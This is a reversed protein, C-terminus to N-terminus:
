PYSYFNPTLGFLEQKSMTDVHGDPFWCAASRSHRTHINENSGAIGYFRHDQVDCPLGSPDPWTSITDCLYPLNLEINKMSYSCGDNPDYQATGSPHVRIGYTNYAHIIGDLMQANFSPCLVVSGPKINADSMMVGSPPQLDPRYEPNTFSIPLYGNVMLNLSWFRESRSYKKDFGQFMINCAPLDETMLKGNFDTSYSIIGLGCQRLNSICVSTKASERANKLAPLLMAALISIIAIVVLLEILTFQVRGSLQPYNPFGMTKRRNM